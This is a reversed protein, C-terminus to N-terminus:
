IMCGDNGIYAPCENMGVELNAYAEKSMARCFSCIKNHICHNCPKLAYPPNNRLSKLITSNHWYEKISDFNEAFKLHTCPQFSADCNINCSRIGAYCHAMFGSKTGTILTSLISFCSEILLAPQFDKRNNIEFALNQIDSKDLSAKLDGQGTQKNSIISLFSINNDKCFLLMNPFDFINDHRAVWNIGFEVKSNVLLNIAEISTEYGERSLDNVEKTSGNLSIYFHINDSKKLLQITKETLGYGSSFVNVSVNLSRLQDIVDNFYPYLLPEGGNLTVLKVDNQTIMSIIGTLLKYDMDQHDLSKKYCQPCNFPCRRTIELQLMTPFFSYGKNKIFNLEERNM